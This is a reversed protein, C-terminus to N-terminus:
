RLRRKANALREEADKIDEEAHKRDQIAMNYKYCASKVIDESHVKELKKIKLVVKSVKRARIEQDTLKKGM